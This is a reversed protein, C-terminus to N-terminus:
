MNALVNDRHYSYILTELQKKNVLVFQDKNKNSKM